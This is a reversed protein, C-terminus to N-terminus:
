RGRGREEALRRFVTPCQGKLTAFAESYTVGHAAAYRKALDDVTATWTPQGSRGQEVAARFAGPERHAEAHRYLDILDRGEDSELARVFALERTVGSAGAIKAAIEDLRRLALEKVTQAM